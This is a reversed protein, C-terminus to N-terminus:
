VETDMATTVNVHDLGSKEGFPVRLALLDDSVPNNCAWCPIDFCKLVIEGAIM